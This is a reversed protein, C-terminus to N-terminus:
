DHDGMLMLVIALIGLGVGFWQIPKITEGMFTAVVVGAVAQLVGFVVVGRWLEMGLRMSWLWSANAIAYLVLSFVFFKARPAMGFKKAYVDAWIELVVLGAFFAWVKM